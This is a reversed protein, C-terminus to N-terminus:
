IICKKDCYWKNLGIIEIGYHLLFGILFFTLNLGYPKTKYENEIETNTSTIKFFVKGIVFTMIGIIIAEVLTNVSLICKLNTM